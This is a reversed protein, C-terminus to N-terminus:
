PHPADLWAALKAFAAERAAPDGGVTVTGYRRGKPIGNREKVAATGDFGHYAGGFMDLEFRAQPQRALVATQLAQCHDAPTWDDNGGALLLLPANLRYDPRKQASACGPYFAVARDVLPTGAPWARSADVADLVAQAGNSWGLLVIRRADVEPQAVVWRIAALIDARRVAGNIGRAAYRETCIGHPKGRPGFSDPFLVAYGRASLWQAYGRYRSGLARADAGAPTYLGSCGHLAIVAPAGGAPAKAHPAFWYATLTQPAGEADKASARPIEVTRVGLEAGSPAPAAPMEPLADPAPQAAVHLALAGAFVALVRLSARIVPRQPRVPGNAPRVHGAM